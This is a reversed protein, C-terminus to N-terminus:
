RGGIFPLHSIAQRILGFAFLLLLICLYVGIASLSAGAVGGSAYDLTAVWSMLMDLEPMAPIDSQCVENVLATCADIWGTAFNYLNRGIQLFFEVIM